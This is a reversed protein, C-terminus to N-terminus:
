RVVGLNRRLTAQRASAHLVAGDAASRFRSIAHSNKLHIRERAVAEGAIRRRHDEVRVSLAIGDSGGDRALERM